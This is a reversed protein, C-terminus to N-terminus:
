LSIGQRRSQWLMARGSPIDIIGSAIKLRHPYIRFAHARFCLNHQFLDPCQGDAILLRQQPVQLLADSFPGRWNGPLKIAFGQRVFVNLLARAHSELHKVFLLLTGPRPSTQNTSRPMTSFTRGANTKLPGHSAFSRSMIVTIGWVVVSRPERNSILMASGNRLGPAKRTCLGAVTGLTRAKFNRPRIVSGCVRLMSFPSRSHSSIARRQPINPDRESHRSHEM